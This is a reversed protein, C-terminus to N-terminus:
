AATRTGFSEYVILCKLYRYYPQSHRNELFGLPFPPPNYGWRPARTVFFRLFSRILVYKWSVKSIVFFDERVFFNSGGFTWRNESIEPFGPIKTCCIWSKGEFVTGSWRFGWFTSFKNKFTTKRYNSEAWLIWPIAVFYFKYNEFNKLNEIKRNKRVNEDSKQNGGQMEALTHGVVMGKPNEFIAM